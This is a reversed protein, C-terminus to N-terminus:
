VQACVGECDGVVVGMGVGIGIWYVEGGFYVSLREMNTTMWLNSVYSIIIHWHILASLLIIGLTEIYYISTPCTPKAYSPGVIELLIQNANDGSKTAGDDGTANAM